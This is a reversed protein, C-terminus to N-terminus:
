LSQLDRDVDVFDSDNSEVNVADVEDELSAPPTAQKAVPVVMDTNSVPQTQSMTYWVVGGLLVVIVVTLAIIFMGKTGSPIEGGPMAPQPVQPPVPQSPGQPQNIEM